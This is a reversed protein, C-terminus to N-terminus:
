LSVTKFIEPVCVQVDPLLERMSNAFAHPDMRRIRPSRWGPPAVLPHLPRDLPSFFDDWHVPVVVRVQAATAIEACRHAGWLPCYFLVDARPAAHPTSGNWILISGGASRIHFSLMSDMRYESLRLPPNIRVPLKGMYPLLGMMRGHEGAYFRIEFPGSSLVDGPKVNKIREPAIGHARLIACTNPSGYAMAGFERCVASVDLLHDFHAHSVLVARARDLYRAVLDQKPAPKGFVTYWFPFRSLYPDILIREGRSELEIGATGLWRYRLDDKM